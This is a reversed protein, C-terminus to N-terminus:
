AKAGHPQARRHLEKRFSTNFAALRQRHNIMRKRGTSLKGNFVSSTALVLWLRPSQIVLTGSPLLLEARVIRRPLSVCGCFASVEARSGPLSVRLVSCAAPELAFARRAAGQKEYIGVGSLVLALLMGTQPWFITADTLSHLLVAFVIGATLFARKKDINDVYMRAAARLNQLFYPLLLCVGVVGFNLLADLYLSHAHPAKHGGLAEFIHRYTMGGQGFLPNARIGAVATQWISFRKTLDGATEEFRPFIGPMFCFLVVGLAVLMGYWKLARFNRFLLLLMPVAAALVLVTTRCDSVASGALNVAIVLAYCIRRKRPQKGRLLKYLALLVALETITAYYNANIFTSAARYDPDAPVSLWVQALAVVFCFVSLACCLDLIREFLARTMVMRIYVAGIFLACMGLAILMGEGNRYYFSIVFSIVSFAVLLPAYATGTLVAKLRDQRALKIIAYVLSAMTVYVPLFVSVVIWLVMREDWTNNFWFSHIKRKITNM